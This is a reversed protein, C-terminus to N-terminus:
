TRRPRRRAADKAAFVVEFSSETLVLVEGDEGGVAVHTQTDRAADGGVAISTAAFALACRRTM